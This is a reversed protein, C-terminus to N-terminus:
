YTQGGIVFGTLVSTGSGTLNGSLTISTFAASGDANITATPTASADAQGVELSELMATGGTIEVADSNQTSMTGLAAITEEAAVLRDEQDSNQNETDTVRDSLASDASERASTESSLSSEVASIASERASTEAAISSEL